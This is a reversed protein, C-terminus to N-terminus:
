QGAISFKLGHYGCQLEDGVRKGLSLPMLRHPCLDELAAVNDNLMTGSEPVPSHSPMVPRMAISM